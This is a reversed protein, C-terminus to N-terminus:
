TARCPNSNACCDRASANRRERKRRGGRGFKFRPKKDISALDVAIEDGLCSLSVKFEAIRHAIQEAMIEHRIQLEVYSPIRPVTFAFGSKMTFRGIDVLWATGPPVASSFTVRLDSWAPGSALDVGVVAGPLREFVDPACVIADRGPRSDQALSSEADDKSM